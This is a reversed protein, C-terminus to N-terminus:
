DVSRLHISGNVTELRLDRGGQGIRGDLHRPSLRGMVTIPFDSQISGNVTEAQLDANLAKPLSVTVSGNVTRFRLPGQGQGRVVATISGNVTSGSADGSSTELRVGGNVTSAKVPGSLDGVEVDGNVNGGVFRVGAPVQAHFRVEVDNNDRVHAHYDDDSGCRNGSGPYVACITVGDGNQVVEIRVEDPDSRRARKEATVVVEDGSAPDATISGSVGRIELTKGAAVRGHWTWQDGQQRPAPRPSPDGSLNVGPGPACALAAAALGIFSVHM